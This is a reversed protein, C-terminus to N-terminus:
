GGCVHLKRIGRDDGVVVIRYICVAYGGEPMDLSIELESLGSRQALSASYDATLRATDLWNPYRIGGEHRAAGSKVTYDAASAVKDFTQMRRSAEEADGILSSISNALLLLMLAFPVLSLMADLSIFGRRRRYPSQNMMAFCGASKWWGARMGCAFAIPNWGGPPMKKGYAGMWMQAAACHLRLMACLPKQAAQPNM